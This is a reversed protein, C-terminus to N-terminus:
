PTKRPRTVTTTHQFFAKRPAIGLQLLEAPSLKEAAELVQKIQVAYLPALQGEIWQVLERLLPVEAEGIATLRASRTTAGVVKQPATGLM